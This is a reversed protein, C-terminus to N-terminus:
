ADAPLNPAPFDAEMHETYHRFHVKKGAEDIAAIEEASLDPLSDIQALKAIREPNNSTTIAVVNKQVTWLLLVTSPEIGRKEAIKEVVAKLSGGTPHRLLPTLPGYSQFVIGHEAQFKQLPELQAWLFPHFEVQNAVPKIRAVKLVEAVDQTRFNSFGLSCGKLTGDYVLEELITWFAGLKGAEPIYPNHILLLDPITGLRKISGEVSERILEPTTADIKWLKTTVWIKERPIGSLRISEATEEETKYIQATDIHLIGEKLAIVGADVARQGSGIFGGSGSGWGVAPIKKGDSFTITRKAVM